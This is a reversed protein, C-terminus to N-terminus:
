RKVRTRRKAKKKTGPLPDSPEATKESISKVGRRSKEEQEFHEWIKRRQDYDLGKGARWKRMALTRGHARSCAEQDSRAAFFFRPCAACRRIKRVDIVELERLFESFQDHASTQMQGDAEITVIQRVFRRPLHVYICNGSALKEANKSFAETIESLVAAVSYCFDYAVSPDPWTLLATGPGKLRLGERFGPDFIPWADSPINETAFRSAVRKRIEDSAQEPTPAYPEEAALNAVAIWKRSRAAQLSKYNLNNQM